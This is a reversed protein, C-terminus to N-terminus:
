LFFTLTVLLSARMTRREEARDAELAPWEGIASSAMSLADNDYMCYLPM